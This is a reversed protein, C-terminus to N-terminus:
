YIVEDVDIDSECSPCTFTIGKADDWKNTFLAKQLEGDSESDQQIVDFAHGCKPCCIEAEYSFYVIAKLESM